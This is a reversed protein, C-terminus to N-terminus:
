VEFENVFKMGEIGGVALTEVHNGESDETVFAPVSTVDHKLAREPDETADVIEIPLGKSELVPKVMKCGRCTPTTFMITKNEKTM